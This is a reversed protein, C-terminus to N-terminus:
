APALELRSPTSAAGFAIIASDATGQTRLRLTLRLVHGAPLDAAGSLKASERSYGARNADREIGIPMVTTSLVTCPGSASRCDSLLVDLQGLADQGRPGLVRDWVVLMAESLDTPGSRVLVNFARGERGALLRM